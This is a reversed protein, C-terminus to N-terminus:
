IQERVNLPIRPGNAGMVLTVHKVKNVEFEYQLHAETGLGILDLIDESVPMAKLLPQNNIFICLESDILRLYGSLTENLKEYNTGPLKFGSPLTFDFIFRELIKDNIEEKQENSICSILSKPIQDLPFLALLHENATIDLVLHVRTVDSKNIGYHPQSFDGYWLEGARWDCKKEGLYFEVDPHTIVPIHLRVISNSLFSDRHEKIIGNSKLILFRALRIKLNLTTLIHQIYPLESLISLNTSSSCVCISNWEVHGEGPYGAPTSNFHAITKYAAQLAVPDFVKNLRIAHATM